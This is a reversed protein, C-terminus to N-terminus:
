DISYERDAIRFFAQGRHNEAPSSAGKTNGRSFQSSPHRTTDCHSLGTPERRLRSNLPTRLLGLGWFRYGRLDHLRPKDRTQVDKRACRRAIPMPGRINFPRRNLSAPENSQLSRRATGRKERRLSAPRSMRNGFADITMTRFERKKLRRM